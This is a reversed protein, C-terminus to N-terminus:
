CKFVLAGIPGQFMLLLCGEEHAVAYSFGSGLVVQFNGGFKQDLTEKLSKSAQELDSPFKEIATVVLEAIDVKLEENMDCETVLANKFQEAMQGQQTKSSTLM